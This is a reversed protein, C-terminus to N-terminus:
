ATSKYPVSYVGKFHVRKKKQHAYNPSWKPTALVTGGSLDQLESVTAAGRPAFLADTNVLKRSLRWDAKQKARIEEPSGQPTFHKEDMLMDMLEPFTIDVADKPIPTLALAGEYPADEVGLGAAKREAAVLEKERVSLAARRKWNM